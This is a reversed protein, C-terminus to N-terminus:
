NLFGQLAITSTAIAVITLMVKTYNDSSLVSKTTEVSNDGSTRLILWVLFFVVLAGGVIFAISMREIEKSQIFKIFIVKCLDDTKCLQNLIPRLLKNM